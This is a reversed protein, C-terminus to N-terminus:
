IPSVPVDLARVDGSVAVDVHVTTLLDGTSYGGSGSQDVHARASLRAGPAGEPLDEIVFPITMGPEIEVDDLEVAGLSVSPADALSVDSIEVVVRGALMPQVDDPVVVEGRVSRMIDGGGDDDDDDHDDDAAKAPM